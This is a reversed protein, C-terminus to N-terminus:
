VDQENYIDPRFNITGDEDVFATWYIIYIPIKDQLTVIKRDGNQKENWIRALDWEGKANELLYKALEAPKEVRICGNSFTRERVDFLHDAPTDHLYIAYENPFMFKVLGMSNTPGPRQRIFLEENEVRDLNEATTPLVTATDEFFSDVIEYNNMELYGLDEKAQPLITRQVISHPINWYPNFELYSISDSFTPTERGNYEEGVVVRMELEVDKGSFAQLRFEPVNVFVYKEGLEEPLDKWSDVSFKMQEIRDEVPVNMEKITEPGIIGDVQLGHRLQFEGVALALADDYLDKDTGAEGEPLDGSIALRERIMPIYESSQGKNLVGIDESISPWGGEDKIDEYKEIADLLRQYAPHALPDEGGSTMNDSVNGNSGLASTTVGLLFFLFIYVYTKM